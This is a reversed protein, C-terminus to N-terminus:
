LLFDGLHQRVQLLGAENRLGRRAVDARLQLRAAGQRFAWQSVLRVARSMAGRGRASSRLWYGIEGVDGTENFRVGVSGLVEGGVVLPECSACADLRGCLGCEFLEEEVSCRGQRRSFRIALCSDAEADDVVLEAPAPTALELVDSHPRKSLVVASSDPISRELHRVLLENAESVSRSIQMAETFRDFDEVTTTALLM